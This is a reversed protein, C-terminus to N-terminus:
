SSMEILTQAMKKGILDKDFVRRATERGERGMKEWLEKHDLLYLIKEALDQENDPEFFVGNVGEKVVGRMAELRPVVIPKESAWFELLCTTVVFNNAMNGSRMIVGVDVDGMMKPLDNHSYWGTFVLNGQEVLERGLVKLKEEEGGGGAIVFVAQPYKQVVLPVARILTELGKCSLLAGHFMMLPEGRVSFKEKLVGGERSSFKELDISEEVLGVKVKDIGQRVVFDKFPQSIAVIGDVTRWMFVELALVLKFLLEKLAGQDAFRYGSQLDGLRIIVKTKGVCLKTLFGYYPVSDDCYFLGIKEKRRLWFSWLPALFAWLITKVLKDRSNGRDFAFPLEVYNVFELKHERKPNKYTLFFVSHGGLSLSKLFSVFSANTGTVQSIPYRHLVAIKM